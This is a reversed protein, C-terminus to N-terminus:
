GPVIIRPNAPHDEARGAEINEIGKMWHQCPRCRCCKRGCLLGNCAMCFGRVRGSGRQYAWMYGCHVCCVIDRTETPAGDRPVIEMQGVRFRDPAPVYAM